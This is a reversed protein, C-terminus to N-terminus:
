VNPILVVDDWPCEPYIRSKWNQELWERSLAYGKNASPISDAPLTTLVKGAKYGSVVMLAYRRGADSPWEVVMFDVTSEYPYRASCRIVDGRAIDIDHNKLLVDM